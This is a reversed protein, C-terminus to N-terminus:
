KEISSDKIREWREFQRHVQEKFERFLRQDDFRAEPIVRKVTDKLVRTMKRELEGVVDELMIKAM